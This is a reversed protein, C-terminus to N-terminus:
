SLWPQDESETPLRWTVVGVSGSRVTEVIVGLLEAARRVDQRSCHASQCVARVAVSEAVPGVALFRRLAATARQRRTMM